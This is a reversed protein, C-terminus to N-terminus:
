WKIHDIIFAKIIGMSIIAGALYGVNKSWKKGKIGITAYFQQDREYASIM